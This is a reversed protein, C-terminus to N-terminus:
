LDSGGVTTTTPGCLANFFRVCAVVSATGTFPALLVTMSITVTPTVSGDTRRRSACVARTVTMIVRPCYDLHDQLTCSATRFRHHEHSLRLDDARRQLPEGVRPRGQGHSAGPRRM